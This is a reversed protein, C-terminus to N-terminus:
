KEVTLCTRFHLGKNPPNFRFTHLGKDLTLEKQFLISGMIDAAYFSVVDKEPIRVEIFTQDRVPNPYNQLLSFSSNIEDRESVGVPFNLVLITDPWVLTIEDWDTTNEIKISDLKVYTNSDRATFGLELTPRQCVASMVMLFFILILPSQKKM